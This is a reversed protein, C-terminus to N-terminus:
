YRKMVMAFLSLAVCALLLIFAAVGMLTGLRSYPPRLFGQGPKRFHWLGFLIGTSLGGIHAANDILGYAIFGAFITWGAATILNTVFKGPLSQKNRWGLVIL